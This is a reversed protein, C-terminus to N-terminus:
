VSFDVKELRSKLDRLGETSRKWPIITVKSFTKKDVFTKSDYTGSLVKSISVEDFTVLESIAANKHNIPKLLHKKSKRLRVGFSLRSYLANM